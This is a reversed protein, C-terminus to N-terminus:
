SQLRSPFNGTQKNDQQGDREPSLGNFISTREINLVPADFHAVAGAGAFAVGDLRLLM